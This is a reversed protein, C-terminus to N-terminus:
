NKTSAMVDNKGLTLSSKLQYCKRLFLLRCDQQLYSLNSLVFAENNITSEEDILKVMQNEGIDNIM